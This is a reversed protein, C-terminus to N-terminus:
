FFVRRREREMEIEFKREKKTNYIEQRQEETM